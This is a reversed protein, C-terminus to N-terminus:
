ESANPFNNYLVTSASILGCLCHLGEHNKKGRLKLHLDIGPNNSFVTVDCISKVLALFLEFHKQEIKKLANRRGDNSNDDSSGDHYKRRAEALAGNRHIWFSRLNVYLGALGGMFYCRAANESAWKKRRARVSTVSNSKTASSNNHNGLHIPDLFGSTTLFSFNDFAWFGMLGLLKLTGGILKWAPTAPPPHLSSVTTKTLTTSEKRQNYSGFSTSSQTPYPRYMGRGMESVTRPPPHHNAETNKSSVGDNTAGTTGTTTTNSPGWGINSSIRSPLIPRGPRSIAKKKSKKASSAADDNEDKKEEVSTVDEEKEEGNWSGDDDNDNDSHGEEEEDEEPIPHTDYRALSHTHHGNESEDCGDDVVVGGGSEALPHVLWYGLYEGWGMSRIKDYEIISRGMRFAKRSTVISKYLSNFRISIAQYLQQQRTVSEVGGVRPGATTATSTSLALGAFYWCLMRSSYQLIKTFKDRGDLTLVTAIWNQISLISKKKHRGSQIWQLTSSSNSIMSNTNDNNITIRNNASNELITHQENTAAAASTKRPSIEQLKNNNVEEQTDSLLAEDDKKHKPSKGGANFKIPSVQVM